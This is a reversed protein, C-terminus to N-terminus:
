NIQTIKNSLIEIIQDVDEVTSIVDSELTKIGYLQITSYYSLIKYYQDNDLLEILVVSYKDWADNKFVRKNVQNMDIKRLKLVMIISKNYNVENRIYKLANIKNDRQEKLERKASSKSLNYVLLSLIATVVLQIIYVTYIIVDSLKLKESICGYKIIFLSGIKLIGAFLVSSIVIILIILGIAKLIKM